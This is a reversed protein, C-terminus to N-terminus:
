DPTDARSSLEDRSEAARRCVLRAHFLDPDSAGEDRVVVWLEGDVTVQAGVSIPTQSELVRALPGDTELIIEPSLLVLVIAVTIVRLRIM